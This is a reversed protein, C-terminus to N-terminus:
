VKVVTMILTDVIHRDMIYIFQKILQAEQVKKFFLNFDIQNGDADYVKQNLNYEKYNDWLEVIERLQNTHHARKQYNYNSNENKRNYNDVIRTPIDPHNNSSVAIKQTPKM